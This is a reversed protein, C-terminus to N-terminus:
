ANRQTYFQGAWEISSLTLPLWNRSTLRLKFERVEQQIDVPVTITAAIQQTNLMWSGTPRYIWDLVQQQQSVDQDMGRIYGRMAASNSLTVKYSGLILTGDLIAKEKKDRMYPATPEVESDFLTGMMATDMDVEPPLADELKEWDALPQGLLFYQGATKPMAVASEQVGVPTWSPSISGTTFSWERMSDLYPNTSLAASRSFEDLCLMVRDGAGYRLTLSLISGNRGTIGVLVGLATSWWWRSWSDYLRQTQDATDLYNFVYFGNTFERTRIALTSPSTLALIQRPTGSLYGDLQSTIEFARFSDAYDGTQMQQVTLKGDRLQSFFIFNGSGAPPCTTTDEYASQTAVYQTKPTMPQRGDLAYQQQKGFLLLSRDMMVGDTIVDGESGLAFVEIPDDDAITLASQRYFNFYDGSKSMCITSGSIFVLRDQFTGIYDIRRNYFGPIPTSDLDGALSHSWDTQNSDGSVAALDTVNSALYMNSGIIEGILTVFGPVQETGAGETWIVEKWDLLGTNDKPKATVYFVGADDGSGVGKPRIRVVKGPYHFPSLDNVSQVEQGIGKMSSGDGGDDVEVFYADSSVMHAGNWGTTGAVAGAAILAQGLKLAINAPQIDAAATGIWQNVATQYAYVRDNVQKQYDTATAPIDSTTLTGPYYSAVTTYSVTFKTGSGNTIKATYTRSYSGSRIWVVSLNSTNGLRNITTVSPAVYRPALLIYKAINGVASIGGNLAATVTAADAPNVLVDMIQYTDKNICILGPFTSGSPKIDPRYMLCYEVSNVFFTYEKFYTADTYTEDTLAVGTLTKEWRVLSGHRRALGRVPDSVFNDQIWHQGVFRDHPVQESVGRIISEFSGTEKSM